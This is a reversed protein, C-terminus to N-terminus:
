SSNELYNPIVQLRRLDSDARSVLEGLKEIFEAVKAEEIPSYDYGALNHTKAAERITNERDRM